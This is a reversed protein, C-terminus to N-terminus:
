FSYRVAHVQPLAHYNPKRRSQGRLAPLRPLECTGIKPWQRNRALRSVCTKRARVVRDRLLGPLIVCSRPAFVRADRWGPVIAPVVGPPETGTRRNERPMTQRGGQLLRYLEREQNAKGNAHGDSEITKLRNIAVNFAQKYVDPKKDKKKEADGKKKEAKLYEDILKALAM